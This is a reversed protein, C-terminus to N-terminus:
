IKQIIRLKASRARPNTKVEERTPRIPKKTILEVLGRKAAEKFIRKVLGDELSHYSIVALRGGPNLQDLAKPIAQEIAPLERNVAMRLAQFTQTAPHIRSKKGGKAKAVIEALQKTGTIRRKQRAEFIAKAIQRSAHEQGLQYILDALEEKSYSNLIEEATVGSATDFRMDLPADVNFSFGRNPSALQLSSLGLDFLIADVRGYGHDQLISGVDIYSGHVAVLSAQSEASCLNSRAIQIAQDDKDIGIVTGRSGVAEALAAAHGGAGLTADVAVNGPKLALGEVVETLLVPIHTPQNM